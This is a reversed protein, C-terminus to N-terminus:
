NHGLLKKVIVTSFTFTFVHKNGSKIKAQFNLKDNLVRMKTKFM